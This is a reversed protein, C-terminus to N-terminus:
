SSKMLSKFSTRLRERQEELKNNAAKAEKGLAIEDLIFDNFSGMGGFLYQDLYQVQEHTLESNQAELLSAICTLSSWWALAYPDPSRPQAKVYSSGNWTLSGANISATFPKIVDAAEQLVGVFRRLEPNM